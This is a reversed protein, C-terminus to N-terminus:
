HLDVCNTSLFRLQSQSGTFSYSKLNIDVYIHLHCNARAQLSTYLGTGELKSIQSKKALQNCYTNTTPSQYNNQSKIVIEAKFETGIVNQTRFLYQSPKCGYNPVPFNQERRIQVLVKTNAKKLENCSCKKSVVTLKNYTEDGELGHSM